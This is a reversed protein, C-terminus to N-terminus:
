THSIYIYLQYLIINLSVYIYIYSIYIYIIYIYIDHIYIYMYIYIIHHIYICMYIIYIYSTYIYIHYIYIYIMFIYIYIYIMNYVHMNTPNILGSLVLPDWMISTNTKDVIHKPPEVVCVQNYGVCRFHWINPNNFQGDANTFCPLWSQYLDLSLLPNWHKLSNNGDLVSKHIKLSIM